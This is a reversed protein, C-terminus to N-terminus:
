SRSFIEKAYKQFNWIAVTAADLIHGRDAIWINYVVIEDGFDFKLKGFTNKDGELSLSPKGHFWIPKRRLLRQAIDEPQCYNLM